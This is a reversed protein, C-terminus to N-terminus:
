EDTEYSADREIKRFFDIMKLHADQEDFSTGYVHVDVYECTVLSGSSIIRDDNLIIKYSNVDNDAAVNLAVEDLWINKDHETAVMNKKKRIRQTKVSVFALNERKRKLADPKSSSGFVRELSSTRMSRPLSGIFLTADFDVQKVGVRNILELTDKRMIDTFGLLTTSPLIGAKVALSHIASCIYNGRTGIGCSIVIDEFGLLLINKDLFEEGEAATQVNFSFEESRDLSITSKEADPYFLSFLAGMGTNSPHNLFKSVAVSADTSNSPSFVRESAQPLKTKIQELVEQFTIATDSPFAVRHATLKMRRTKSVM